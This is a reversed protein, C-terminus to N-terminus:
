NKRPAIIRIRTDKLQEGNGLNPLLANTLDSNQVQSNMDIDANAYGSSGILQVVASADDNQVQGNGDFDGSFLAFTGSGMDAVASLGGNILIPNTTLDLNTNSGNLSVVNATIVGLHIRHAVAVFYDDPELDFSLSSTGNLSVIDGDRQILASQSALINTNDNKDRLEVWIWDVIDNEPDGTGLSGGTNLVGPAITAVDIYPSTTPIISNSRLNDNMLGTTQQTLLPGQLFIKPSINISLQIGNIFGESISVTTLTTEAVFTEGITYLIEVGSASAIDGGSDISSKYISQAVTTSISLLVVIVILCLQKTKM